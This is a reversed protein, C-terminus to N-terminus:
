DQRLMASPDVRIARLTPAMAGGVGVAVLLLLAASTALSDFQTVGYLLNRSWASAWWSLAIGALIGVALTPIVRSVVLWVVNSPSAGLALRLGIERQQQAVFYALIGYLGIASLSLAFAGFCSSLLVLLREQWLSRDVEESLTSVQYLPVEPDISRVLERVPQIIAQPDGHSRVHLIFTDPYGNPGFDNMYLIPPPVERLSRYKADNVVGIVEYEPKTFHRGAAFKQGLPNRGNLFKRVFANNVIVKQPEGDAAMEPQGFTRGALLRIGMVEFYEPSVSNTSTNIIGDGAQGPFVVSAGLGIGRMLARSALAAGEVGPLQRIGELLRQQLVWTKQGDYGRVHPDVSFITVHDQDFGADAARLNSLSRIILGASLLLMTCLAIQFGCLIQQFHRNRKDSITSKLAIGVDSHSSRWAPALACLMTTVACLAIAFAVVRFDLHPHLTLARIEGPDFGIGHAPPMWRMLLPMSCFAILVGAAGGTATLILSEILWQLLIRGRSAGLAFRIATEKERAAARSLLLGGVNACVMLLLLGTGALLLALATRSQKRLPSVGEAISEVQLRDASIRSLGPDSQMYRDWLAATEQEAQRRTVGPRLRAIIEIDYHDLQNAFPIWLDPSSDVTTGTFEQPTVGVITYLHGQIRVAQGLVRPDRGFSRSWYGYSLVASYTDGKGPVRGLLPTVGLDVFFNETVEVSHIRDAHGGRELARVRDIQGVTEFLTSSLASLQDYFRYAFYPDAPRKPHIVFLQVLNQPDRVQLPRLLVADVLTFIQTIAAIGVAILLAAAAFFGPSRRLQRVAYRFDQTISAAM